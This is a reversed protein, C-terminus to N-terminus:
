KKRDKLQKKFAKVGGVEKFMREIKTQEIQRASLGAYQREYQLKHYSALREPTLIGDDIASKVACGPEAEHQCDTFRCQQALESIDSFSQDTAEQSVGAVGVSRIGPTDIIKAGNPLLHMASSTTTHRGHGDDERITKTREVTQGMLINVLTSKGVGSSGVFAVNTRENLYPVFAARVQQGHDLQTTLVPIGFANAEVQNVYNAIEAETVLDVKTLVIVPLAGSDWVLTTYRDLRALNFDQNVAMTIFVYDLNAAIIQQRQNIGQNQRQLVSKRELVETILVFDPQPTGVVNDGVVPRRDAQLLQGTLKAPTENGAEDIVKYNDQAQLSVQYQKALQSHM